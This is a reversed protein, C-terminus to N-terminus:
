ANGTDSIKYDELVNAKKLTKSIGNLRHQLEDLKEMLILDLEVDSIAQHSINNIAEAKYM